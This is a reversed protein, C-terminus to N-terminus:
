LSGPHRVVPLPEGTIATDQVFGDGSLIEGDVSFGVRDSGCVTM